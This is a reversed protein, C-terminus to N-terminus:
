KRYNLGSLYLDEMPNNPNVTNKSNTVSEKLIEDAVRNRDVIFQKKENLLANQRDNREQRKFMDVVYNFNEQIFEASKGQLRSVVFKKTEGPLNATKEALIRKSEIITNRKQLEANEKVLKDMQRKGDVLAEKMNSKIFKEDVGLVKRAEEIAKLAYQNKAAEAIEQKPLHKEIYLDLFEDISEVLSDRHQIATEEIIKKYGESVTLLKRDNDEMIAKVVMKIKATHDADIAAVAKESITKFKDFQTQIASEVELNLREQVKEDVKEEVLSAIAKLTDESLIEKDVSEFINKLEKLM